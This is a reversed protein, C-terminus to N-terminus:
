TDLYHLNKCYEVDRDHVNLKSIKNNTKNTKPLNGSKVLDCAM